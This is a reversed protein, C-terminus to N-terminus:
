DMSIAILLEHLTQATQEGSRELEPLRALAAVYQDDDCLALLADGIRHLNRHQQGLRMFEVRHGHRQKGTGNFWQGFRSSDASQSAPRSRSGPVAQLYARVAELWRRNDIEVILLDIDAPACQM